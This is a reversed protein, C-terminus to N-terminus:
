GRRRRSARGGGSSGRRRRSATGRFRSGRMRPSRRMPRGGFMTGRRRPVRSGGLVSGLVSLVQAARSGAVPAAARPAGVAPTQTPVEPQPPQPRPPAPRGEVIAEAADLHWAAELLDPMAGIEEDAAAEFADAAKAYGASGAVYHEKAKPHEDVRDALDVIDNAMGNLLQRIRRRRGAAASKRSRRMVFVAVLILVAVIGVVILLGAASGGGGDGTSPAAPPAADTIAAVFNQLYTLNDGGVADAEDLASNIRSTAFDRSTVGVALSDTLVIVTGRDVEAMVFESFGAAGDLPDVGLIVPFIPTGSRATDDAVRRLASQSIPVADPDLYYGDALLAAAVESSSQAAATPAAVVLVAVVLVIQKVAGLRPPGRRAM